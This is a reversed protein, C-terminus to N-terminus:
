PWGPLFTKWGPQGKKRLSRRNTAARQWRFHEGRKKMEILVVPKWVYDAFSVGGTDAKTVRMELIAGAEKSGGPCGFSQFLHDLFIPAEGTEDGTM